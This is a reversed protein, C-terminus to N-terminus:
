RCCGELDSELEDDSLNFVVEFHQRISAFNEMEEPYDIENRHWNKSFPQCAVCNGRM